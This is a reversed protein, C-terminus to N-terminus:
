EGAIKITTDVKDVEVQIYGKQEEDKVIVVLDSTRGFINSNIENPKDLDLSIINNNSSKYMLFISIIEIILLIGVIFSLIKKYKM